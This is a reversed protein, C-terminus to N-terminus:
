RYFPQHLINDRKPSAGCKKPTTSKEVGFEKNKLKGAAVKTSIKLQEYWFWLQAGIM